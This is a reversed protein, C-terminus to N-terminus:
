GDSQTAYCLWLLGRARKRANVAYSPGARISMMEQRLHEISKDMLEAAEELILELDEHIM